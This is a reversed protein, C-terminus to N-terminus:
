QSLKSTTIFATSLILAHFYISALTIRWWFAKKSDPVRPVFHLEYIINGPIVSDYESEWSGSSFDVGYHVRLVKGYKISCQISHAQSFNESIKSFGEWIKLLPWHPHPYKLFALYKLTKLFLSCSVSLNFLIDEHM